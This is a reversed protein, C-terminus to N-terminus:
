RRSRKAAGKGKSPPWKKRYLTRCELMRQLAISSGSMDIAANSINGPMVIKIVDSAFLLEIEESSLGFFNLTNKNLLFYSRVVGKVQDGKWFNVRATYEKRYEDSIVWEVNQLALYIEDTEMDNYISFTSGDPWIRVAFCTDRKQVDKHIGRIQWNGEDKSYFISDSHPNNRVEYRQANAGVCFLMIVVLISIVPRMITEWEPILLSCGTIPMSKRAQNSYRKM